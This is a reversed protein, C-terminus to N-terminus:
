CQGLARRAANVCGAADGDRTRELWICTSLATPRGNSQHQMFHFSVQKHLLWSRNVLVRGCSKDACVWDTPVRSKFLGFRALVAVIRGWCVNFQRTQNFEHVISSLSYFAFMCQVIRKVPYWLWFCFMRWRSCGLLWNSIELALAPVSTLYTIMVWDVPSCALTSANNFVVFCISSKVLCHWVTRTISSLLIPCTFMLGEVRAPFLAQSVRRRADRLAAANGWPLNNSFFCQLQAWTTQFRSRAKVHTRSATPRIIATASAPVRGSWVQM